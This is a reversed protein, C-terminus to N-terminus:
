YPKSRLNKHFFTSKCSLTMQKGVPVGFYSCFWIFARIRRNEGASGPPQGPDLGTCENNIVLNTPGFIPGYYGAAENISGANWNGLNEAQCITAYLKIM